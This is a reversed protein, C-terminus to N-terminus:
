PTEMSDHFKLLRAGDETVVYRSGRGEGEQDALHRRVLSTRAKYFSSDPMDAAGKWASASAGDALFSDHLTRLAQAEVASLYDRNSWPEDHVKLVCSEAVAHLKLDIPSFEAADKQKECALQLAGDKNRLALITDAAGGLVSSGREREQSGHGTHHQIIATGGVSDKVRDVAAVYRAMDRSSNEDGGIMTRSLTDWVIAAIPEDGLTRITAILRGVEGDDLMPVATTIFRVGIEGELGLHAKQARVRNGLGGRGEGMIYVVSGQKVSRGLCPAGAAHSFAFGLTLFTKGIARPGFLVVLGGHPYIGDVGWEPAPLDEAELDTIIAYLGARDDSEAVDIESFGAVIVDDLRSTM